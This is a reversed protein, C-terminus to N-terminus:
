LTMEDLSWNLLTWALEDAAIDDDGTRAAVMLAVEDHRNAESTWGDTRISM